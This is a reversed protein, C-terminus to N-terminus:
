NGQENLKSILEKCIQKIFDLKSCDILAASLLICSKLGCERHATMIIVRTGTTYRLTFYIDFKNFEKYITIRNKAFDDGAYATQYGTYYKM